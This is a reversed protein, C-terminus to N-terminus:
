VLRSSTIKPTSSRSDTMLLNNDYNCNLGSNPNDNNINGSNNCNIININIDDRSFKKSGAIVENDMHNNTILNTTAVLSYNGNASRIINGSAVEKNLFDEVMKRSTPNSIGDLLHEILRFPPVGQDLYDPEEIVLEAVAGAVSASSLKDKVFGEPRNKYLQLRSWKSANRYSTNGKYDVQIVKEAEILRHLDAITDRADVCFKRLLYNCIRDADPRAKRRRLQDIAELIQEEYLIQAEVRHQQMNSKKKAIAFSPLESFQRTPNIFSFLSASNSIRRRLRTYIASRMITYQARAYVSSADPIKKSSESKSLDQKVPESRRSHGPKNIPQSSLSLRHSVEKIKNVRPSSKPTTPSSIKKVQSREYSNNKNQIRPSVGPTVRPSSGRPTKPTVMPTKPTVPSISCSPRPSKPVPLSSRTNKYGGEPTSAALPKTKPPKKLCDLVEEGTNPTSTKGISARASKPPTTPAVRKGLSARRHMNGLPIVAKLPGKKTVELAQEPKKRLKSKGIVPVPKIKVAVEQQVQSKTVQYASSSLRSKIEKKPSDARVSRGVSSSRRSSGTYPIQTMSTRRKLGFSKKTPSDVSRRALSSVSRSLGPNKMPSVRATKVPSTAPTKESSVISSFVSNLKKLLLKPQGVNESLLKELSEQIGAILKLTSSNQSKDKSDSSNISDGKSINEKITDHTFDSSKISTDEFNNSNKDKNLSSSTSSNMFIELLDANSQCKVGLMKELNKLLEIAQSNNEAKILKKLDMLLSAAAPKNEADILEKELERVVDVSSNDNSKLHSQSSSQVKDASNFGTSNSTDSSLEILNEVRVENDTLVESDSPIRSPLEDSDSSKHSKTLMKELKDAILRADNARDWNEDIFVSDSTINHNIIIAEPDFVSGTENGLLSKSKLLSLKAKLDSIEAFSTSLRSNISKRVTDNEILSKSAIFARNIKNYTDTSSGGSASSFKRIFSIDSITDRSSNLFGNNLPNLLTDRSALELEQLSKDLGVSTASYSRSSKSYHPSVHCGQSLSRQHHYGQNKRAAEAQKLGQQVCSALRQAAISKIPCDDSNTGSLSDNLTSQNLISQSLEFNPSEIDSALRKLYRETSPRGTVSSDLLFSDNLCSQDLISLEHFEPTPPKVSIVPNKSKTVNKPVSTVSPTVFGDATKNLKDGTSRCSKRTSNMSKEWVIEFPDQSKSVFESTKRLASDFPNDDLNGCAELNIIPNNIHKSEGPNGKDDPLPILPSTLKPPKIKKEEPSTLDILDSM